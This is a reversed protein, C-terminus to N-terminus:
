RKDVMLIFDLEPLRLDRADTNRELERGHELNIRLGTRRHLDGGDQNARRDLCGVPQGAQALWKQVRQGHHRQVRIILENM